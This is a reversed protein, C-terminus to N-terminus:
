LITVEKRWYLAKPVFGFVNVLKAKCLGIERGKWDRYYCMDIFTRNLILESTWPFRKTSVKLNDMSEVGTVRLYHQASWTAPYFLSVNPHDICFMGDIYSVKKVRAVGPVFRYLMKLLLKRM